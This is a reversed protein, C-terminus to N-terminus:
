HEVIVDLQTPLSSHHTHTHGATSGAAHAAKREAQMFCCCVKTAGRCCVAPPSSCSASPDRTTMAAWAMCLIVSRCRAGATRRERWQKYGFMRVEHCRKNPVDGQFGRILFMDLAVPHDTKSGLRQQRGDHTSSYCRLRTM